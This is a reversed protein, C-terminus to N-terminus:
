ACTVMSIRSIGIVYFLLHEDVDNEVVLKWLVVRWMVRLSTVPM